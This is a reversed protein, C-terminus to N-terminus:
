PTTCGLHRRVQQFISHKRECVPFGNVAIQTLSFRQAVTYTVYYCSSQYVVRWTLRRLGEMGPGASTEPAPLTRKALRASGGLRGKGDEELQM